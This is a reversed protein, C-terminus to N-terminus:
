GDAPVLVGDIETVLSRDDPLALELKINVGGAFVRSGGDNLQLVCCKFSQNFGTM